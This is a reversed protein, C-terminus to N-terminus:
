YMYMCVNVMAGRVHKMADVLKAKGYLMAAGVASSSTAGTWWRWLAPHRMMTKTGQPYPSLRALTRQEEHRSTSYRRRMLDRLRRSQSAALDHHRTLSGESAM